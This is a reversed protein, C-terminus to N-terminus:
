LGNRGNLYLTLETILILITKDSLKRRYMNLQKTEMAMLPSLHTYAICSRILGLHITVAQTPLTLALVKRYLLLWLTNFEDINLHDILVNLFGKDKFKLELQSLLGRDILLSFM